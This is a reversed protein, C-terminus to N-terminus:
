SSLIRQKTVRDKVIMQIEWSAKWTKKLSNIVVINDGEIALKKIGTNITAKIGQLAVMAETQLFVRQVSRRGICIVIHPIQGMHNRLIFGIHSEGNLKRSGDFYTKDFWTATEKM